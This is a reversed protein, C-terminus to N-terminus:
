RRRPRRRSTSSRNTASSSPSATSAARRSLWCSRPHHITRRGRGRAGGDADKDPRDQRAAEAFAQQNSKLDAEAASLLDPLPTTIMEDAALVKEYTDAGYAFSGNSRNLLDDELWKKYDELAAIVADNATKFEALM